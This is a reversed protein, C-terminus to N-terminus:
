DRRPPFLRDWASLIIYDAAGAVLFAAAILSAQVRDLGLSKQFLYIALGFLVSVIAMAGFALKATRHRSASGGSRDDSM